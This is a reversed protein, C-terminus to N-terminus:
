KVRSLRGARQEPLSFCIEFALEHSGLACPL